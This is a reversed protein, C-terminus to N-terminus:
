INADHQHQVSALDAHIVKDARSYKTKDKLLDNFSVMSRINGDSKQSETLYDQLLVKIESQIASGVSAITYISKPDFVGKGILESCDLLFKHGDLVYQFREYLDWLYTSIM